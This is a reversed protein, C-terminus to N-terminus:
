KLADLGAKAVQGDNPGSSGSVGIAGVIKGDLIIPVGGEGALVRPYSLYRLGDGGKALADQLSKTSRQFACATYAKEQAMQPAALQAGDAKQMLVPNCGSDLIVITMPWSNKRAEADAAAYAKRAQELTIPSGYTQAAALGPAAALFITLLIKGRNVKM